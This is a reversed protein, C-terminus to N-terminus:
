LKCPLQFKPIPNPNQCFDEEDSSSDEASDTDSSSVDDVVNPKPRGEASASATITPTLRTDLASVVAKCSCPPPPDWPQLTPFDANVNERLKPAISRRDIVVFNGYQPPILTTVKQSLIALAALGGMALNRRVPKRSFVAYKVTVARPYKTRYKEVPPASQYLEALAQDVAQSSWTQSLQELWAKPHSNRMYRNALFGKAKSEEGEYPSFSHSPKPVRRYVPEPM